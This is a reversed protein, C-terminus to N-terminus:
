AAEQAGRYVVSFHECAILMQESFERGAQACERTFFERHAEQWYALSGDGEGEAAAFAATVENFPLVQVSETRIVCLPEGKWNTVISLQGPRPLLLGDKEFTWVAGATARKVGRLVLDALENALAETDCFHFAEYFDGEQAGGVAQAFASWFPALHEPVPM